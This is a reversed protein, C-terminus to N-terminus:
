ILARGGIMPAWRKWVGERQRSVLVLEVFTNVAAHLSLVHRLVTAFLYASTEAFNTEDLTVTIELGECFGRWVDAGVRRVVTRTQIDTIGMVERVSEPRHSPCHLRLMNRLTEVAEGRGNRDALSLNNLSLQAVLQWLVGADHMPPVSPTPQDLLVIRAPIENDTVLEAGANLQEALTRNTCLTQVTATERGPRVGRLEPEVFALFTDSGERGGSAMDRRTVWYIDPEAAADINLRQGFFPAVRRPAPDGPATVEVRHVSHIEHTEEAGLEPVIRYETDQHNLPIPEATMPFLNIVPTCNLAVKVARLDLWSPPRRRLGFLLEVAAGRPRREFGAVDLFLFKEPLIFHERMLRQAPHTEVDDPLLSDSAGFGVHHLCDPGLNAAEGTDPDVVLLESTEAMLLEQVQTAHKRPGAFHLRLTDLEVEGLPAGQGQIRLAIVADVKGRDFLDRAGPSEARLRGAAIPRLDVDYSTRFRCLAGTEGRAFLTSGRPLSIGTPPPPLEGSTVLRAIATAPVPNALLPYLSQLLAAPVIALDDEVRRHLRATLFAFSELLREIQPDASGQGSLELRAALKPFRRAFDAGAYRLYRLETEYLELLREDFASM